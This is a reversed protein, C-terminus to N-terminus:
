LGDAAGGRTAADQQTIRTYGVKGFHERYNLLPEALNVIRGVEALRLFLDLDEAYYYEQRYVGVKAFMHRRIVVTPHYVMQGKAEMLAQDLEEHKLPVEMVMLPCGDPDIITVRSGVMVCEPHADLYAVQREFRNPLAIDDADMRAVFEGRAM